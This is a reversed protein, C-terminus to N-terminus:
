LHKFHHTTHVKRNTTKSIRATGVKVIAIETTTPNQRFYENALEKSHFIRM